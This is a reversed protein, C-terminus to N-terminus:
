TRTTQHSYNPKSRIFLTFDTSSLKSDKSSLSLFSMSKYPSERKSITVRAQDDYIMSKGHM